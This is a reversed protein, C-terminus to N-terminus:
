NPRPLSSPPLPRIPATMGLAEDLMKPLRKTENYAPIVVSLYVSPETEDLSPFYHQEKTHPDIFINEGPLWVPLRRLTAVWNSLVFYALVVQLTTNRFTFTLTVTHYTDLYGLRVLAVVVALLILQLLAAPSFLWEFPVM